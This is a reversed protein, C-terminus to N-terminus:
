NVSEAWLSRPAAPLQAPVIPTRSHHTIQIQGIHRAQVVPGFVQGSIDNISHSEESM